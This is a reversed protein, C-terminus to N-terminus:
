LIVFFWTSGVDSDALPGNLGTHLQRRFGSCALMTTNLRNKTSVHTNYEISFLLRISPVLQVDVAFKITYLMIGARFAIDVSHFHNVYIVGAKAVMLSPTPSEADATDTCLCSVAILPFGPSTKRSFSPNFRFDRCRLDAITDMDGRSGDFWGRYVKCVGDHWLLTHFSVAQVYKGMM